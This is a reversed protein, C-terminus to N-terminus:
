ADGVKVKEIECVIRSLITPHLGVAHAIHYSELDSLKVVEKLRKSIM